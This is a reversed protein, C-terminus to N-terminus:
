SEGLFMECVRALANGNGNENGTDVFGGMSRAKELARKVTEIQDDHLTFTMQQIPARDENPLGGMGAAWADSDPMAGTLLDNLTNDDKGLGDLDIGESELEKLLAALEDPDDQVGPMDGIWNDALGQAEAEGRSVFSMPRVPILWEGGPGRDVGVPPNEPAQAYLLQLAELRGNGSSIVGREEGPYTALIPLATFGFRRMGAALTEIQSAPHKHPNRAWKQLDTLKVLTSHPKVGM